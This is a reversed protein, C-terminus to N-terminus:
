LAINKTIEINIGYAAEQELFEKASFAMEPYFVGSGLVKGKAILVAATGMATGVRYVGRSGVLNLIGLKKYENVLNESPWLDIRYESPKNNEKGKVLVSGAHRIDPPSKEEVVQNNLLTELVKWPSVFQGDVNIPEIKNFGLDRLLEWKRGTEIGIAAKSEIYPIKPFLRALSDSDYGPWGAVETQGIPGKFSFLEPENRPPLVIRKGNEWKTSPLSFYNHIYGWWAFGGYLPRTHEVDPIIDVIAWRIDVKDVEELMRIGYVAAINVLGPTFGMGIVAIRDKNKFKADLGIQYEEEGFSGVDIYNAGVELAAKTANLYNGTMAACNIVIDSGQMVEVLSKENSKDIAIGSYKTNNISNNYWSVAQQIAEGNYDAIIVESIEEIKRFYMGAAIGMIGLGGLIIAKM